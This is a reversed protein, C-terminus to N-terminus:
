VEEAREPTSIVTDFNVVPSTFSNNDTDIGPVQGIYKLDKMSGDEELYNSINTKADTLEISRISHDIIIKDSTFGSGFEIVSKLLISYQWGAPLIYEFIEDLLKTNKVTEPLSIIIYKLPKGDDGTPYQIYYSSSIGQSNLLLKIADNIAVTTGKNKLLNNFTKIVSILELTNYSGNYDFGVTRCALDVFRYDIDESGNNNLMTDISLKSTNFGLDFLRSILQFDRSKEGYVDPLRELTKIM